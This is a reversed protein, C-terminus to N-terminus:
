QKCNVVTTWKSQLQIEDSESEPYRRSKRVRLGPPRNTRRCFLIIIWDILPYIKMSINQRSGGVMGQHSAMARLLHRILFSLWPHISSHRLLLSLKIVLRVILFFHRCASPDKSSVNLQIADILHCNLLIAPKLASLQNSNINWPHIKILGLIPVSVLYVCKLTKRREM